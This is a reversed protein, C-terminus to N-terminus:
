HWGISKQNRTRSCSCSSRILDSAGAAIIRNVVDTKTLYIYPNEIVLPRNLVLAALEQLMRLTLPHTTRSARARLVQDAIPLNLRVVGNEFFSMGEANVSQGVVLALSWFLFSRTRQTFERAETNIKHIWVPVRLISVDSFRDKLREYLEQQRSDIVSIARHSVLVINEGRAAGEVAGGLSDLGGSFLM